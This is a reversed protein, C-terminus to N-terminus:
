RPRFPVVSGGVSPLSQDLSKAIEVLLWRRLEAVGPSQWRDARATFAYTGLPVRGGLHKDLVPVLRGTSLDDGVLFPNALAVGQGHRAAEIALHAQCLRPGPLTEPCAIGCAAFWARWQAASEEHLLPARLLDEIRAIPRLSRALLPSAVPFVEPRAIEIRRADCHAPLQLPELGSFYHLDVDAEYRAFDPSVDHPRLVLEVQPVLAQFRPLRATLWGLALGPMCWIRLVRHNRISILEASAQAIEELARTIRQHYRAGTETLIQADRQRNILPVGAWKELARLHRSVVAHDLDLALAARRIGGLRGVAAFARLVAYAPGQPPAPDQYTTM